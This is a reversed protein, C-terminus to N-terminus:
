GCAGPSRRQACASYLPLTSQNVSRFEGQTGTQQVYVTAKCYPPWPATCKFSHRLTPEPPDDDDDDGGTTSSNSRQPQRQPEAEKVVERVLGALQLDRYTLVVQPGPFSGM